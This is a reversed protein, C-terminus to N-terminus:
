SEGGKKESERGVDAQVSDASRAEADPRANPWSAIERVCLDHVADLCGERDDCRYSEPDDADTHAAIRRILDQLRVPDLAGEVRAQAPPTTMRDAKVEV